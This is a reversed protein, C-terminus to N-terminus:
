TCSRLATVDPDAGREFSIHVHDEHNATAGGRDEMGKWGSGTNIRQDWIAYSVGLADKNEIVCDAIADGDTTMFDLAYGSPHDSVNGRSGVGGVDHGPFVCELANGVTQVSDAVGGYSSDAGCNTIRATRDAAAKAQQAEAAKAQEAAAAQEAEAAQRRVRDGAKFLDATAADQGANVVVPAVASAAAAPELRTSESSLALTADETPLQLAAPAVAALAVTAVGAAALGHRRVDPATGHRGTRRAPRGVRDPTYGARAQREAVLAALDLVTTPADVQPRDPRPRARDPTVAGRGRPSRHRSM